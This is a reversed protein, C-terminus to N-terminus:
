ARHGIRGAARHDTGASLCTMLSPARTSQPREYPVNPAPSRHPPYIIRAPEATDDPWAVLGGTSDPSRGDPDPSQHGRASAGDPTFAVSWLAGDDHCQSIVSADAMEHVTITGAASDLAAIRSGDRTIAIKSVCQDWSVARVLRPSTRARTSTDVIFIGGDGAM